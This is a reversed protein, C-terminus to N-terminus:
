GPDSWGISGEPDEQRPAPRFPFLDQEDNLGVSDDAPMALSEPQVPSRDRFASGSPRRNWSLHLGENTSECALVAPAGSLDPSFEFFKPDRDAERSDRSIERLSIRVVILALSPLRKKVIVSVADCRHVEQDDGSNPKL